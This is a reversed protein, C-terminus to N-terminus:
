LGETIAEERAVIEAFADDFGEVDMAVRVTEPDLLALAVTDTPGLTDANGRCHESHAKAVRM